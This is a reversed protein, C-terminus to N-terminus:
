ITQTIGILFIVIIVIILIAIIINNKKPNHDPDPLESKSDFMGIALLIPAINM